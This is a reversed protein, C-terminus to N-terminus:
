GVQKLWPNKKYIMALWQKKNKSNVGETRWPYKPNFKLVRPPEHSRREAKQVQKKEIYEGQQEPTLDKWWQQRQKKTKALKKIKKKKAKYKSPKKKKHGQLCEQGYDPLKHIM